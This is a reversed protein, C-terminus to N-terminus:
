PKKLMSLPLKRGIGGGEQGAVAVGEGLDFITQVFCLSSM